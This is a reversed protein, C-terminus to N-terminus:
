VDVESIILIINDRNASVGTFLTFTKVIMTLRSRKFM